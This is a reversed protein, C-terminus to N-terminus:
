NEMLAKLAQWDIKELFARARHKEAQVRVVITQVTTHSKGSMEDAEMSSNEGDRVFSFNGLFAYTSGEHWGSSTQAEDDIVLIKCGAMVFQESPIAMFGQSFINTFLSVHMDVDHPAIAAIKQEFVQDNQSAQDNIQNGIAEMEKQLQDVRAMDGDQAAKAFTLSLAELRAIREEMAADPSLDQSLAPLKQDMQANSASIRQEDQWRAHYDVFMPRTEQDLAVREPATVQTKEKLSWGVPGPPLAKEFATLVALAMKKEASNAPRSSGDAFASSLFSAVVWATLFIIKFIQMKQSLKM